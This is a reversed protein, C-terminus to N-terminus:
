KTRSELKALAATRDMDNFDVLISSPATVYVKRFDFSGDKKKIILPQIIDMLKEGVTYVGPINIAFLATSLDYIEKIFANVASTDFSVLVLSSIHGIRSEMIKTFLSNLKYEDKEYKLQKLWEGVLKIFAEFDESRKKMMLDQKDKIIRLEQEADGADPSIGLVDNKMGSVKVKWLMKALKPLFAKDFNVNHRVKFTKGKFGNSFSMQNNFIDVIDAMFDSFEAPTFSKSGDDFVPRKMLHFYIL